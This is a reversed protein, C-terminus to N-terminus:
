RKPPEHLRADRPHRVISSRSVRRREGGVSLGEGAAPQRVHLAINRAYRQTNSGIPEM